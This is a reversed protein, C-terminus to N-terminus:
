AKETGGDREGQSRSAWVLWSVVGVLLVVDIVAPLDTVGLYSLFGSNFRDAVAVMLTFYSAVGILARVGGGFTWPLAAWCIGSLLPVLVSATWRWRSIAAHRHREADAGRLREQLRRDFGASLGEGM